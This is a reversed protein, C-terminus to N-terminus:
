SRGYSNRIKEDKQITKIRKEDTTLNKLKLYQYMYEGYKKDASAFYKEFVPDDEKRACTGGPILGFKEFLQMREFSPQWLEGGSNVAHDVANKWWTLSDKNNLNHNHAPIVVHEVFRVPSTDSKTFLEDFMKIIKSETSSLLRGEIKTPLEKEKELQIDKKELKYIESNLIHQMTETPNKSAQMKEETIGVSEFYENLANKLMEINGNEWRLLKSRAEKMSDKVEKELLQNPFLRIYQEGVNEKTFGKKMAKNHLNLVATFDDIFEQAKKQCEEMDGLVDKMEYPAGNKGHGSEDLWIYTQESVDFNDLAILFSIEFDSMDPSVDFVLSFDQGASSYKSYRMSGKGEYEINAGCHEAVTKYEFYPFAETIDPFYEFYTDKKNLDSNLYEKM